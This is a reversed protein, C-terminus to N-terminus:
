KNSTKKKKKIVIGKAKPTSNVSKIPSDTHAVKAPKTQKASVKTAKLSKSNRTERKAAVPEDKTENGDMDDSENLEEKEIPKVGGKAGKAKRSEGSKNMVFALQQNRFKSYVPLSVSDSTKLGLSHIDKWGNQLKQVAFEIGQIVNETIEKKGMNTLGFKITINKGSLHMYTSGHIAKNIATVLKSTDKYDVPVPFNNRAGFTKGLKNYLHSMVAPDCVFHTHSSALKKLNKLDAYLKKIDNLSIVEKLGPILDPNEEIMKEISEKDDSKCFLCITHEDPEGPNFISHPIKVRVPKLVPESIDKLLQIQVQIPKAYDDILARSGDSKKKEFQLLAAVAKAVLENNLKSM